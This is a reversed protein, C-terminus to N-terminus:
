RRAEKNRAMATRVAKTGTGPAKLHDGGKGTEPELRASGEGKALIRGSCGPDGARRPQMVVPIDLGTVKKATEIVEKVSFGTGIGLNFM